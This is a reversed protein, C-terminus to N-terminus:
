QKLLGIPGALHSSMQDYSMQLFWLTIRMLHPFSVYM